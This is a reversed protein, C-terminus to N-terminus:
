KQTCTYGLIELADVAEELDSASMGNDGECLESNAGALVCEYCTNSCGAAFGLIIFLVFFSALKQM